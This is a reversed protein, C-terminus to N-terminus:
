MQGTSPSLRLAPEEAPEVDAVALQQRDARIVERVVSQLRTRFRAESFQEAHARLAREEFTRMAVAKLAERIAEPEPVDFFVGTEGERVTELLGEARLAVCPKGFSAAEIATLGYDDYAASVVGAANMYLWRLTADPVAGLIRVNARALRRLPREEPGTGVVVLRRGALGGFAAVVSAVNKYPLLRAVCLFFGPEIGDLPRAVGAPRLGPPPYVVEADIGYAASIKARTAESVALYRTATRAAARDWRLLRSRLVALALRGLTHRSRGFYRHPEYLWRAPSYCYVIKEGRAAVGHAWGSSSCLVLDADVELASFSPALVPYAFRHRRRLVRVGNIPLTKVHTRSFEAFTGDPDFLSTYLTAGPFARLMALVVREAGGRQTLYDHVIAVRVGASLESYTGAM